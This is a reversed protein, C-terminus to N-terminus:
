LPFKDESNNLNSRKGFEIVEMHEIKGDNLEFRLATQIAHFGKNGCAGPNLWLANHLKDHQVLLIHSHGCIILNPKYELAKEHLRSVYKGPKGGIHTILVRVGELEFLQFEPFSLRINHDDINGFVARLPKFATLEDMVHINGIDGAHWIEDVDKFLTFLRKPIFGHTDSILGIRKM